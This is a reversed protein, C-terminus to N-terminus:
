GGEPRSLSRAYRSSLSRGVDSEENVGYAPGLARPSPLAVSPAVGYRVSPSFPSSLLGSRGLSNGGSLSGYAVSMGESREDVRRAAPGTRNARLAREVASGPRRRTPSPLPSPTVYPASVGIGDVERQKEARQRTDDTENRTRGGCGGLPVRLSVHPPHPFSPQAPFLSRLSLVGAPEQSTM